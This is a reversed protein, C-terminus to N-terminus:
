NRQAYWRRIRGPLWLLLIVALAIAFAAVAGVGVQLGAGQTAYQASGTTGTQEPMDERDESVTDPAGDDASELSQVIENYRDETIGLADYLALDPYYQDYWAAFPEDQIYRTVYVAPDVDPDFHEITTQAWAQTNMILVAGLM